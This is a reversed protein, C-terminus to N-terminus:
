CYEYEEGSVFRVAKIGPPPIVAGDGQIVIPLQYATVFACGAERAMELSDYFDQFGPHYMRRNKLASAPLPAAIEFRQDERISQLIEYVTKDESLCYANQLQDITTFTVFVKKISELREQEGLHFLIYLSPGDIVATDTEPIRIIRVGALPLNAADCIYNRGGPQAAAKRGQLVDLKNEVLSVLETSRQDVYGNAKYLDLCSRAKEYENRHLYAVAAYYVFIREGYDRYKEYIDMAKEAIGTFDLLRIRIEAEMIKLAYSGPIQDLARLYLAYAKELKNTEMLYNHYTIYYGEPEQDVVEPKDKLISDYVEGIRHLQGTRRYFGMLLSYHLVMPLQEIMECLISEAENYEGNIEHYYSRMIPLSESNSWVAEYRKFYENYKPKNGGNFFTALLQLALEENTDFAADAVSEIEALAHGYMQRMVIKGNAIDKRVAEITKASGHNELETEIIHEYVYIEDFSSYLVGELGADYLHIIVNTDLTAKMM